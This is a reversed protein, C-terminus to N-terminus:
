PGTSRLYRVAWVMLQVIAFGGLVWLVWLSLSYRTSFTQRFVFAIGVQLIGAALACMISQTLTAGVKRTERGVLYGLVGVYAVVRCAFRSSTWMQGNSDAYFADVAVLVAVSLGVSLYILNDRTGQKM